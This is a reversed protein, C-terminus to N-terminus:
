IFRKFCNVMKSSCLNKSFIDMKEMLSGRVKEEIIKQNKLSGVIERVQNEEKEFQPVVQNAPQKVPANSPKSTIRSLKSPIKSTAKTEKIPTKNEKSIAFDEFLQKLKNFLAIESHSQETDFSKEFCEVIQKVFTNQAM